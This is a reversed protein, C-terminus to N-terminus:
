DFARHLFAAMQERTVSGSPCYQGGGCGTTIGAAALRNIDAEHFNGNDDYFYDTGTAPLALARALFSAMQDRSVVTGPCFAGGGCGNAIGAQAVRNIDAQHLSAADDWFYDTGAAPLGLARGLFSAMQERPVAATPCFAGGGCGNSIGAAALWEIDALFPSGVTDYFTVSPQWPPPSEGCLKVFIMVAYYRGDTGQTWSGGAHTYSPGLMQENHMPSNYWQLIFAEYDLRSNRLVIEGFAEWCIGTQAFRVKLAEFDHGLQQAAAVEDSRETALADITGHLAVPGLGANSRYRNVISVLTDGGTAAVPAAVLPLVAGAILLATLIPSVLRPHSVRL